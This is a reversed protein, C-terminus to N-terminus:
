HVLFLFSGHSALMKIILVLQLRIYSHLLRPIPKYIMRQTSGYDRHCGSLDISGTAKDQRVRTQKIDLKNTLVLMANPINEMKKIKILETQESIKRPEEGFKLSKNDLSFMVEYLGFVGEQQRLVHVHLASPAEEKNHLAVCEKINGFEVMLKEEYTFNRIDICIVSTKTFIIMYTSSLFSPEDVILMFQPFHRVRQSNTRCKVISRTCSGADEM